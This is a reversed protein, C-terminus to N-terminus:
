LKRLFFKSEPVPTDPTKDGEGLQIDGEQYPIVGESYFLFEAEEPIPKVESRFPHIPILTRKFNRGWLPYVYDEHEQQTGLAVIADDPVLEEFKYYADRFEPRSLTLQEIRDTKFVSEDGFLPYLRRNTLTLVASVGIIFSCAFIYRGWKLDRFAFALLPLCWVAMNMFYRGKIPDYPATFSLCLFHIGAALIFLVPLVEKRNKIFRLLLILVLPLVLAFSIIGWFPREKYFAMVEDGMMKFPYVVWFEGRELGFKDFLKNPLYRFKENLEEGWQTNRIGDLQLFDSSYRLVNFQFNRLKDKTSYGEIGHYKMMIPPASLAGLSFKEAAKLNRIYGNPVVFVGLSIILAMVALPLKKVLGKSTFLVYLAIIFVAPGILMFTVKHSIWVGFALALLIINKWSSNKGVELLLYVVLGLYASQVIDTETTVAQILASPLLAAMFAAFLAGKNHNFLTKSIGYTSVVFILYSAFHILKFGNEGLLHFGFIQLTPLSNPYYDISWTTGNVIGMHGKQLYYACKVLHGTMSDWENPVGVWFVIINISFTLVTFFTLVLYILKEIRSSNLWIQEFGNTISLWVDKISRYRGEPFLKIAFRQLLVVVLLVVGWCLPNNIKGLASLVYGSPIISVVFGLFCYMFYQEPNQSIRLSNQHTLWLFIVFLLIAIIAM